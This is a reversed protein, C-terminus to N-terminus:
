WRCLRDDYCVKYLYKSCIIIQVCKFLQSSLNSENSRFYSGFILIVPVEIDKYKTIQIWKERLDEDKDEWRSTHLCIQLFLIKLAITVNQLFGCPNHIRAISKLINRKTPNLVVAEEFIHHLGLNLVDKTLDWNIGLVKLDGSTEGLYAQTNVKQKILDM